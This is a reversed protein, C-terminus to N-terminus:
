LQEMTEARCLPEWVRMAQAGFRTPEAGDAATSLLRDLAADPGWVLRHEADDLAQDGGFRQPGYPPSAARHYRSRLLSAGGPWTTTGVPYSQCPIM